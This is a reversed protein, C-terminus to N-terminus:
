RWGNGDCRQGHCRRKRMGDQSEVRVGEDDLEVFKKGQWLGVSM